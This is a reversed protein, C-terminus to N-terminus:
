SPVEAVVIAWRQVIKLQGEKLFPRMGTSADGDLEAGLRKRIREAIQPPPGAQALWREADLQQDHHVRHAVRAGAGELLGALGGLPLAEEHSPDRLREIEDLAEAPQGDAVVLDILAVHGGSRCVRVMEGVQVAPAEFHHVAFRSVVLDFSRDLYPLSAADGTEFLVNGVGAADVQAKGVRLMEPTLDIAVVQRAHAAFGRAVHGTGAAVDLVIADASVPVNALIWRMLREDGFSYGPDEFSAAQRTFERRVVEDHAPCM